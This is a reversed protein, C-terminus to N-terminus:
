LFKHMLKPSAFLRFYMELFLFDKLSNRKCQNVHESIKYLLYKLSFKQKKIKPTKKEWKKKKEKEM